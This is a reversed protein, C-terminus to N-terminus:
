SDLCLDRTPLDFKFHSYIMKQVDFRRRITLFHDSCTTSKVNESGFSSREVVAHVKEVHPRGFTARVYRSKLMKVQFTSRVVVAHLKENRTQGAPEAGAAQAFRSKSGGSGCMLSVVCHKAVKRGKRAGADERWGPRALAMAGQPQLNRQGASSPNVDLARRSAQTEQVLSNVLNKPSVSPRPPYRSTSGYKTALRM